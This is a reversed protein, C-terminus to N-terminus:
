EIYLTRVQMCCHFELSKGTKEQPKGPELNELNLILSVQVFIVKFIHKKNLM